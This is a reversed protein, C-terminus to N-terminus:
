RLAAVVQVVLHGIAQCQEIASTTQVGGVVGVGPIGGQRVAGHVVLVGMGMVQVIYTGTM